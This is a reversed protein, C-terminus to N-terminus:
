PFIHDCHDVLFPARRFWFVVSRDTGKWLNVLEKGGTAELRTCPLVVHSNQLEVSKEKTSKSASAQDDERGRPGFTM